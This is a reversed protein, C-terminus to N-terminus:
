TGQTRKGKIYQVKPVHPVKCNNYFPVKYMALRTRREDVLALCEVHWEVIRM